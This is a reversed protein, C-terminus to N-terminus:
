DMLVPQATKAPNLQVNMWSTEALLGMGVQIASVGTHDQSTSV